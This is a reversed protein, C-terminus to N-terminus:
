NGLSSRAACKKAIRESRPSSHGDSLETHRVRLDNYAEGYVTLTKLAMAEWSFMEARVTGRSIARERAPGDYLGTILGAAISEVSMPDVWIAAEGLVEPMSSTHAAVVPIASLMAELPPIGFGESLSPFLFVAANSYLQPLDDDDVYGLFRVAGELHRNRVHERVSTEAEGPGGAIIFFLDSDHSNRVLNFADIARQLNKNTSTCGVFLVYRSPLQYKVRLEDGGVNRTFRRDVGNSVVVVDDQSIPFERLIEAKVYDSVTIIKTARPINNDCWFRWLLHRRFLVLERNLYHKLDHITLIFSGRHGVVGGGIPFHVIDFGRARPDLLFFLHEWVWLLRQSPLRVDVIHLRGSLESLSPVARSDAIITIDITSSMKSLQMILNLASKEVGTHNARAILLSICVKM